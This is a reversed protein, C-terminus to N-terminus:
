FKKRFRLTKIFSSNLHSHDSSVNKEDQPMYRLVEIIYIHGLNICAINKVLVLHIPTVNWSLHIGTMVPHRTRLNRISSRGGIHLTVAFTNFLCDHVNLLHHDELKTTPRPALLKDGYFNRNIFCKMLHLVQVSRKTLGAEHDPPWLKQSSTGPEIGPEVMPIKRTPPPDGHHGHDPYNTSKSKLNFGWKRTAMFWDVTIPDV